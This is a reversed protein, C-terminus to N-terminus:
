GPAPEAHTPRDPSKVAIRNVASTVARAVAMTASGDIGAGYASGASLTVRAYAATRGRVGHGEVPHEAAGVTHKRLEQASMGLVLDRWLCSTALCPHVTARAYRWVPMSSARQPNWWPQGQRGPGSPTRLRAIPLENDGSM